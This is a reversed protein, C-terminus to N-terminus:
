CFFYIKTLNLKTLQDYILRGISYHINQYINPNTLKKSLIRQEFEDGELPSKNLTLEFNKAMQYWEKIETENDFISIYFSVDDYRSDILQDKKNFSIDINQKEFIDKLMKSLLFLSEDAGDKNYAAFVLIPTQM